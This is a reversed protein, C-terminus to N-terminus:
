EILLKPRIITTVCQLIYEQLLVIEQSPYFKNHHKEIMEACEVINKKAQLTDLKSIGDKMRKIVKLTKKDFSKLQHYMPFNNSCAM